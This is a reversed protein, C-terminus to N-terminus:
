RRRGQSFGARARANAKEQSKAESELGCAAALCDFQYDSMKGRILDSPRKGYRRSIIDIEVM